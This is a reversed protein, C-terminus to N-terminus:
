TSETSSSQKTLRVRFLGSITDRRIQSTMHDLMAYAEMRYEIAPDKQAYARMHIGRRLRDLADIHSTWNEDVAQLLIMRELRRIIDPYDSEKQSYTKHATDRLIEALHERTLPTPLPNTLQGAQLFLNTFTMELGKVRWQSTDEGPCYHAIAEQIRTEMMHYISDRMDENELIQRRQAYIINRQENVVDDYKLM